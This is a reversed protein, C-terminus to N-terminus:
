NKTTTTLSKILTHIMEHVFDYKDIISNLPDNEDLTAVSTGFCVLHGDVSVFIQLSYGIGVNTGIKMINVFCRKGFLTGRKFFLPKMMNTSTVEYGDANESIFDNTSQILSSDKSLLKMQAILEEFFEESSDGYDYMSVVDYGGIIRSIAFGYLCPVSETSLISFEKYYEPKIIRWNQPTIFQFVDNTASM